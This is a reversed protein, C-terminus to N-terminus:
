KYKEIVRDFERIRPNYTKYKEDEVLMRRAEILAKLLEKM